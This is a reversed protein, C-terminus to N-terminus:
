VTDGAGTASGPGGAGGAGGAGGVAGSPDVFGECFASPIVLTGGSKEVSEYALHM